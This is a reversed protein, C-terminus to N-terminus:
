KLRKHEITEVKLLSLNRGATTVRNEDEAQANNRVKLNSVRHFKEWQTFYIELKSPMTSVHAYGGVSECMYM